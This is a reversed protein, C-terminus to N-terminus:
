VPHGVAARQQDLGHGSCAASRRGCWAHRVLRVCLFTGAPRSWHPRKFVQQLTRVVFIKELVIGSRLQSKNIRNGSTDGRDALACNKLSQAGRRIAVVYEYRSCVPWEWIEERIRRKWLVDFNPIRLTFDNVFHGAQRECILNRNFTRDSTWALNAPLGIFRGCEKPHFSEIATIRFLFNWIAVAHQGDLRRECTFGNLPELSLVAEAAAAECFFSQHKNWVVLAVFTPDSSKQEVRLIRM